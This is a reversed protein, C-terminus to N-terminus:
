KYGIKKKILIYTIIYWLFIPLLISVEPNLVGGSSFKHLMFFVGWIILTSAISLSTFKGINFFRSNFSTYSFILIILPVFYLPAVIEYYLSARIKSTNVEQNNLLALATIADLISFSSTSEYVSDLIKPKFGELTYLFKERHIEIKSSNWSIVKPKKTIKADIVYWRNNQFYAKKAVIGEEIDDDIVKYIHIDEAYKQLPYLKKFYVFYDNYKVFIDSKSSTFYTNKLIKEKYEYSYALPTMQLGILLVILIVSVNVVPMFIQRNGVGLSFSAVMENTKVMIVITIIWGFVLSLPLTLTLTFFSNYLIYLLQLNASNPVDAYNQLFDIGVFFIQLSILVIVFNRIFKRLLYKTIIRM